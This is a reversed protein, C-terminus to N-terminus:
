WHKDLLKYDASNIAGTIFGILTSKSRVIILCFVWLVLHYNLQTLGQFMYSRRLILTWIDNLQERLCKEYHVKM